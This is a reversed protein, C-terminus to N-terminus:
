AVGGDIEKVHVTSNGTRKLGDGIDRLREFQATDPQDGAREFSQEVRCSSTFPAVPFQNRFRDRSSHIQEFQERAIRAAPEITM